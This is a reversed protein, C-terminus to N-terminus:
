KQVWKAKVKEFYEIRHGIKGIERDYFEFLTDCMRIMWQKRSGDPSLVIRNSNAIQIQGWGLAGLTLCDWDLFEIPVFHVTEVQIKLASISYAVSLIVFYNKDDEYFRSLREVSTLNPMNFHTDLRHTKIDVVYYNGDIDNFAIDAMARRAFDSSYKVVLDGLLNEFGDELLDQIADGVARPSSITRESLFDSQSNIFQKIGEELKRFHDTSFIKNDSM